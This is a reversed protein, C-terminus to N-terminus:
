RLTLEMGEYMVSDLPFTAIIGIRFDQFVTSDTSNQIPDLIRSEGYSIWPPQFWV